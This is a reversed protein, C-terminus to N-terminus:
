KNLVLKRTIEADNTRCRFYYTGSPQGSLNVPFKFTGATSFLMLPAAVMRGEQSVIMLSVSQPRSLSYDVFTSPNFPNPYAEGVSLTQVVPAGDEHVSFTRDIQCVAILDGSFHQLKDVCRGWQNGENTWFMDPYDVRNDMMIAEGSPHNQREIIAIFFPGRIKVNPTATIWNPFNNGPILNVSYLSDGIYNDNSKRVEFQVSQHTADPFPWGRDQSGCIWVKMSILTIEDNTGPDFLIFFGENRSPLDIPADANGNFSQLNIRDDGEAIATGSVLFLLAVSLLSALTFLRKM